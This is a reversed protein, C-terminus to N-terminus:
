FPTEDVNGGSPASHLWDGRPETYPSPAPKAAARPADPMLYFKVRNKAPYGNQADQIGIMCEFRKYCLDSLSGIGQPYGISVCLATYSKKAIARTEQKTHELLLHDFVRRNKYEGDDVAIELNPGRGAGNKTTKDEAKVVVCTYIGAPIPEFSGGESAAKIDDPTIAYPDYSM